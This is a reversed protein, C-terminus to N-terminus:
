TREAPTTLSVDYLVAVREDIEREIKTIKETLANTEDRADTFKKMSQNRARRTFDDATLTWPQELPNRSSSEAPEIGIVSLFREVRKRRKTHLEQTQQALKAVAKREAIPADPIPINSVFENRLESYGGRM